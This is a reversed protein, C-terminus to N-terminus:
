LFQKNYQHVSDNKLYTEMKQIDFDPANIVKVDVTPETLIGNLILQSQIFDAVEDTTKDVVEIKGIETTKTIAM